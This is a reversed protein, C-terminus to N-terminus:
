GLGSCPLSFMVIGGIELGAIPAAVPATTPLTAPGMPATIPPATPAMAPFAAAVPLGIEVVARSTTPIGRGALVFGRALTGEGLFREVDLGDRLAPRALFDRRLAAALRERVLLRTLRLAVERLARRPEAALVARRLDPPERFRPAADFARRPAPLL